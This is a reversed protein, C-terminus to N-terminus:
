LFAETHILKIFSYIFFGKLIAPSPIPIIVKPVSMVSSGRTVGFLFVTGSNRFLFLEVTIYRTFCSFRKGLHRWKVRIEFAYSAEWLGATNLLTQEVKLFPCAIVEKSSDSASAQGEFHQAQLPGAM